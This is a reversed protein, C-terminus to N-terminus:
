RLLLEEERKHEAQSGPALASRTGTSAAIAESKADLKPRFTCEASAVQAAKKALTAKKARGPANASLEADTKARALKASIADITPRHTYQADHAHQLSRIIADRRKSDTFALRETREANDLEEM